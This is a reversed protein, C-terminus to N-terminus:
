ICHNCAIALAVVLHVPHLYRFLVHPSECCGLAAAVRRPVYWLALPLSWITQVTHLPIGSAASCINFGFGSARHLPVYWLVLRLRIRSQLHNSNLRQRQQQTTSLCRGPPSCAPCGIVAQAWGACHQWAPPAFSTCRRRSSPFHETAQRLRLSHWCTGWRCGVGRPDRSMVSTNDQCHAAIYLRGDEVESHCLPQAGASNPM